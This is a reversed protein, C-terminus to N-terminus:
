VAQKQCCRFIVVGDRTNQFIHDIPKRPSDGVDLGYEAPLWDRDHSCPWTPKSCNQTLIRPERNQPRQPCLRPKSSSKQYGAGGRDAIFLAFNLVISHLLLQIFKHASE